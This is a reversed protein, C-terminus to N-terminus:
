IGTSAVLLSFSRLIGLSKEADFATKLAGSADAASHINFDTVFYLSNREEHACCASKNLFVRHITGYLSDSKCSGSCGLENAQNGPGGAIRLAAPFLRTANSGYGIVARAAKNSAPGNTHGEVEIVFCPADISRAPVMM